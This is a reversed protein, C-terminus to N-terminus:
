GSEEMSRALGDLARAAEEAGAPIVDLHGVGLGDQIADYNVADACHPKHVLVVRVREGFGDQRLGKLIRQCMAMSERTPEAAVVIQSAAQIARYNGRDLHSGVDIVLVDCLGALVDLLAPIQEGQWGDPPAALVQVGDGSQQLAEQVDRPTIDGVTSATLGLAESADGPAMELLIGERDAGPAKALQYAM